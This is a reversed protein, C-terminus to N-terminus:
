GIDYIFEPAVTKDLDSMDRQTTDSDSWTIFGLTTLSLAIIAGFIITSKKM